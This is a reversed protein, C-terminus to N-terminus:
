MQKPTLCPFAERLAIFLVAGIFIENDPKGAFASSTLSQDILERAGAATMTHNGPTCYQQPLGRRRLDAQAWSFGTVLGDLWNDLVVSASRNLVKYQDLTRDAYVFPCYLALLLAAAQRNLM